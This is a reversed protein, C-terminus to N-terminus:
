RSKARNLPVVKRSKVSRKTAQKVGAHELLRITILEMPERLREVEAVFYGATVDAANKHNVLKKITYGGIGLGDAVTIFTRRLDHPTFAVGSVETVIAIQYRPDSVHGFKNDGPFVWENSSRNQWRELLMAHLYDSLPLLLPEHNKTEQVFLTRANLDVGRTGWTLSEAEAKRLGTLLLLILYDRVTSNDLAQVAKWWPELEHAKIVGQRRPLKNWQNNQSLRRVPNVAVLPEGNENEYKYAAFTFLARVVRMVNDAEGPHKDSIQRHRNEIMEKTIDALPLDLWDPLKSNVVCRYNYVTSPKLKKAQIYADLVVALTTTRLQERAKVVAKEHAALEAKKQREDHPNLGQKIYNAILGDAIKRAKDATMGDKGHEGIAVTVRDRTGKIRTDLCYTKTGANTIRLTFGSLKSDRYKKGPQLDCRDVFTKNLIIPKEDVAVKDTASTDKAM